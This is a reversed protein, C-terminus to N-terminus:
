VSDSLDVGVMANANGYTEVVFMNDEVAKPSADSITVVLQKCSLEAASLAFEWYASNGITVATPLTALNAAAGGDKAIKVDGAAPTWDAGLAFDVAGRKIMPIRIHSGTATATNNKRLLFMQKEGLCRQRTM